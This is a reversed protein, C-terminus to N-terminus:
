RAATTCNRILWKGDVKVWECTYVEEKENEKAPPLAIVVSIKEGDGTCSVLRRKALLKEAQAAKEKRAATEQLLKARMQRLMEQGKPTKELEAIQKRQDDSLKKGQSVMAFELFDVLGAEPKLLKEMMDYLHAVFELQQHNVTFGGTVHTFEPHAVALVGNLDATVWSRFYRDNLQIVKDKDAANLTFACCCLLIAAAPFFRRM